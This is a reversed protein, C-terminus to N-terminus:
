HTLLSDSKKSAAQDQLLKRLARHLMPSGDYKQSSSRPYAELAAMSRWPGIKGARWQRLVVNPEQKSTATTQLGRDYCRRNESCDSCAAADTAVQM